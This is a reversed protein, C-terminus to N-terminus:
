PKYAWLDSYTRTRAAAVGLGFYGINNVSFGVAECRYVGGFDPIAKWNDSSAAYEFVKTTGFFSVTTYNLDYGLGVYAKDNITFSSNSCAYNYNPIGTKATWTKTSPDYMYLDHLAKPLRRGGALIVDFQGGGVYAKDNIVFAYAEKRIQPLDTTTTWTDTTPNYEYFDNLQNLKDSGSGIYGMSGISFAVADGRSIGAFNAKRTWTNKEPDFEWFDNTPNINKDFGTGFYGKNGIAFGVGYARQGGPFKAKQRWSDYQPDYEWVEDIGFGDFPAGTTGCVIYAKNNITFTAAGTRGGVSNNSGSFNVRRTWVGSRIPPMEPLVIFEEEFDGRGPAQNESTFQVHGTKADAPVRVLFDCYDRDPLVRLIETPKVWESSGFFRVRISNPDSGNITGYGRILEGIKASDPQLGYYRARSLYFFQSDSRAWGATEFSVSLQGTRATEPVVVLIETPVVKIPVTGTTNWEDFSVLVDEIKTGFSTGIIRITDGSTARKPNFDTITPVPPPPPETTNKECSIASFIFYFIVIYHFYKM